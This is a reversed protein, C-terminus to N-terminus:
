RGVNVKVNLTSSLNALDDRVGIGITQDGSRLRIKTAYAAASSMAALINENPISVPLPIKQPDSIRGEDDRVVVFISVSGRHVKEEPVLALKGLPFKIQLPLVFRKGDSETEGLEVWAQLPNTGEDMLLASLTMDEMRQDPDKDRYTDLFRVQVGPRDVVVRVKHVKGDGEHPSNFGLSYFSNLDTRMQELLSEFNAVETSVAGGTARALLRLGHTAPAQNEIAFSGTIVDGANRASVAQLAPTLGSAIPYFAVRNTAADAVLDVLEESTDYEAVAEEVSFVNVLDAYVAGYKQFWYRFVLEGPRLPLGDSVYLIAKRGPLGALSNLFARIAHTSRRVNQFVASAHAHAGSMTVQADVEAVDPAGLSGGSGIAQANESTPAAGTEIQRLVIREGAVTMNSQSATKAIREIAEEVKTRDSTFRQEIQITRDKNVVMVRSGEFLLSDLQKRLGAFVQSRQPPSIFANDVLVVVFSRERPLTAGAADAEELGAPAAASRLGSEVAYFNTIEVREGDDYVEFDDRTLGTVPKGGDSVMVEVNVLNVDIRDLFVPRQGQPPAEAPAEAPAAVEEEAPESAPAPAPEQATAAVAPVLTFFVASLVTQLRM